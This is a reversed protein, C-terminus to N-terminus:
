LVGEGRISQAPVPQAHQDEHRSHRWRARMRDAVRLFPQEIVAHAVWAAVLALVFGVTVNLLRRQPHQGWLQVCMEVVAWHLVYFGYSRRGLAVLPGVSLVRRAFGAELRWLWLITIAYGAVEMPAITYSTRSTFTAVGSLALLAAAVTLLWAGRPVRHRVLAALCGLLLYQPTCIAEDASPIGHWPASRPVVFALALVLAAVCPARARRPLALLVLPYFLYFQEEACLSWLHATHTLNGWPISPITLLFAFHRAPIDLKGVALLTLLLAYYLPVIRLARLLYFRGLARRRSALELRELSMTIVFGSLTFFLWVAHTGLYSGYDGLIAAHQVFVCLCAVGRATDLTPQHAPRPNM